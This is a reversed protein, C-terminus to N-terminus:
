RPVKAVDAETIQGYANGWSKRVHTAVAAIDANSLTGKWGPMTGTYPKGDVEIPGQIGYLLVHILKKQDAVYSSRILPPFVNTTGQGSARHCSACNRAFIAAGKDSGASATQTGDATGARGRGGGPGMPTQPGHVAGKAKAATLCVYQGYRSRAYQVDGLEFYFNRPTLWVVPDGNHCAPLTSSAAAGTQAGMGAGMGQGAGPGMPTQPGAVAGKAKAASECMYQGNPSTGYAVDGKVHYFNRPTLWVVPDGADCAPMSPASTQASVATTSAFLVCMVGSACYSVFRKFM